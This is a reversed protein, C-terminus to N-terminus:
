RDRVAAWLADDEKTSVSQEVPEMHCLERVGRNFDALVEDMDFYIKEIKM